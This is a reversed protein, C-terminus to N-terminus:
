PSRLPRDADDVRGFARDETWERASTFALHSPPVITVSSSRRRCQGGGGGGRAGDDGHWRGRAGRRRRRCPSSQLRTAARRAVRQRSAERDAAAREDGDDQGPARSSQMKIETTARHQTLFRRDGSVLRRRRGPRHTTDTHRTSLTSRLPEHAPHGRLAGASSPEGTTQGRRGQRRGRRCCFFTGRGSGVCRVATAAASGLAAPAGIAVGSAGAAAGVGPPRTRRSRTGAVFRAHGVPPRPPSVLTGNEQPFNTVAPGHIAGTAAKTTTRTPAQM